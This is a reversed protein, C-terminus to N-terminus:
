PVEAGGPMGEASAEQARGHTVSQVRDRVRRATRRPRPGDKALASRRAGLEGEASSALWLGVARAPQPDDGARELQGVAEDFYWQLHKLRPYRRAVDREIGRRWRQWLWFRIRGFEFAGPALERLTIGVACGGSSTGRFLVGPALDDAHARLGGVMARLLTDPLQTLARGVGGAVDASVGRPPTVAAAPLVHEGALAPAFHVGPTSPLNKEGM